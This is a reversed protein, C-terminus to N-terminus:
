QVLYANGTEGFELESVVENLLLANVQFAIVGGSSTKSAIVFYPNGDPLFDLEGLFFTGSESNQVTHEFWDTGIPEDLVRDTRAVEIIVTGQADTLIIENINSGSLLIGQLLVRLRPTDLTNTLLSLLTQTHTAQDIFGRVQRSSAKSAELQRSQWGERESRGVLLYISLIVVALTILSASAFVLLIRARLSLIQKQSTSSM